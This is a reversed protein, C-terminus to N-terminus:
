PACLINIVTTLGPLLEFLILALIVSSSAAIIPRRANREIERALAIKRWSDELALAKGQYLMPIAAMLIGIGIVLISITVPHM